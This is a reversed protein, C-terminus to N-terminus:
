MRRGNKRNSGDATAPAKSQKAVQGSEHMMRLVQEYNAADKMSFQEALENKRRLKENVLAQYKQKNDASEYRQHHPGGARQQDAKDRQSQHQM